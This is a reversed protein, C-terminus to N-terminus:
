SIFVLTHFTFLYLSQEDYKVIDFIANKEYIAAPILKKDKNVNMNVGTRKIRRM